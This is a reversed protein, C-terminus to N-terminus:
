NPASVARFVSVVVLALMVIVYIRLGWLLVRVGLTLNRPGFRSQRKAAVVQDAELLSLVVGPDKLNVQEESEAALQQENQVPVEQDPKM